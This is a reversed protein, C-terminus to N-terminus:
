DPKSSSVPLMFDLDSNNILRNVEKTESSKQGSQGKVKPKLQKVTSNKRTATATISNAQLTIDILPSAINPDIDTSEVAQKKFMSVLGARIKASLHDTTNM